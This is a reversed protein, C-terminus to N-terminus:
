YIAYDPLGNSFDSPGAVGVVTNIVMRGFWHLELHQVTLTCM